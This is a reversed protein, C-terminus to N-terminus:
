VHGALENAVWFPLFETGLVPSFEIECQPVDRVLIAAGSADIRAWREERVGVYAIVGDVAIGAHDYVPADIAVTSYWPPDTTAGECKDIAPWQNPAVWWVFHAERGPAPVLTAPVVGDGRFGCCWAAAMGEVTCETMVVPGDLGRWRRLEVLKSPCANSGYSLLPTRESLPPASAQRLWDDLTLGEAILVGSHNEIELM